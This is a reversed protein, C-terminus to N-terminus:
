TKLDIKLNNQNVTYSLPRTEKKKEKKCTATWNELYWKNFLSDKGENYIREEKMTSYNVM